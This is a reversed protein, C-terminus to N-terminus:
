GTTHNSRNVLPGYLENIRDLEIVVLTSYGSIDNWHDREDWNGSLIRSIKSAIMHLSERQIDDLEDWNPSAMMADKLKQAMSATTKYPGHTKERQNILDNM